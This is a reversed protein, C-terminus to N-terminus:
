PLTAEIRADLVLFGDRYAIRRNLGTTLQLGALSPAVSAISDLPPLPLKIALAKAFQAKLKPWLDNVLLDSVVPATFLTPGAPSKITWVTVSPKDALKLSLTDNALDISLGAELLVGLRGNTDDGRPVMELEGLSVVLDATEDNRPMRVIPPLQASVSLPLSDSFPVELLGSNWLTHLLGNLVVLRVGLQSRPSQFLPDATSTDVLAVGRSKPHVAKPHDTKVDLSLNARMSDLPAIDLKNLHGDLNLGVKPFPAADVTISLNALASDLSQFVSELAQPLSGQLTGALASQLIQEVTTRLFGSALAFVANANADAFAGTATELAMEFTGVTVVVPDTPSAKTISALAYGSLSANVGGDLSITTNSVALSGTTGLSLAGVRVFLDLGGEVLSVEVNVDDLKVSTATLMVGSSNILPNPLKQLVDMGAVVRMVIDAVDPLTVPRPANLPVATGDDFFGQGLDLVIADPVSLSPAGTADVAAAYSAGFAVDLERRVEANEGDNASVLLHNVGFTAAVDTKFSGDPAVMAPAGNVFVHTAHASTVKGEVAFTSTGDVEEGPQPKTLVLLPPDPAVEIVAEGCVPKGDSGKDITCAQFTLHGPTKLTFAGASSSPAAADAPDLTWVVIADPLKTGAADTVTAIVSVDSALPYFDLKPGVDVSVGAPLPGHNSSGGGCGAVLALGSATLVFLATKV